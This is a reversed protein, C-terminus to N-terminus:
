YGAKNGATAKRFGGLLNSTARDSKLPRGNVVAGRHSAEKRAGALGVKRLGGFLDKDKGHM